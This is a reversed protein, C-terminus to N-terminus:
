EIYNYLDNGFSVFCVACVHTYRSWAWHPHICAYSWEKVEASILPPHDVGRGPRRVGTFLVPIWKVPKTDGLSPMSPHPFDRKQRSEIGSGDLVGVISGHGVILVSPAWITRPEHVHRRCVTFALESSSHSVLLQITLHVFPVILALTGLRGCFFM